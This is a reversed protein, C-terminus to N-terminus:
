ARGSSSSGGMAATGVPRGNGEPLPRTQPASARLRRSRRKKQSGAYGINVSACEGTYLNQLLSFVRRLRDKLRDFFGKPFNDSPACSRQSDDYRRAKGSPRPTRSRWFRLDDFFGQSADSPAARRNDNRFRRRTRRNRNGQAALSLTNGGQNAAMARFCRKAPEHPLRQPMRSLPEAGLVGAPPVAEQVEVKDAAQVKRLM